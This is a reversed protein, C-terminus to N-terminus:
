FAYGLEFDFGPLFGTYPVDLDGSGVTSAYSSAVPTFASLGVAMSFGGEFIWKYGGGAGLMHLYWTGEDTDTKVTFMALDYRPGVFFGALAKNNPHWLLDAGIGFLRYEITSDVTDVKMNAGWWWGRARISFMDGIAREYGANFFMGIWPWTNIFVNNYYLAEPEDTDEVAVMKTKAFASASFLVFLAMAIVLVKKMNGGLSINHRGQM